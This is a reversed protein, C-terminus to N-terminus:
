ARVERMADLDKIAKRYLELDGNANKDPHNDRAVRRLRQEEAKRMADWDGIRWRRPLSQQAGDSTVFITVKDFSKGRKVLLEIQTHPPMVSRHGFVVRVQEPVIERRIVAATYNKRGSSVTIREATAEFQAARQAQRAAEQERRKDTKAKLYEAKTEKWTKPADSTVTDSTVSAAPARSAPAATDSTVPPITDSTVPEAPSATDSTVTGACLARAFQLLEAKKEAPVWLAVQVLGKAGLRQRYATQRSM